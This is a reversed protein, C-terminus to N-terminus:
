REEGLKVAQHIRLSRIRLFLLAAGIAVMITVVVLLSNLDSQEFIVQFPPVQTKASGTNQMFPIFIKSALQGSLIGILISTGATLVQELLLMATLEARSLGSARLIGFQVTRRSLTFFWYLIYGLLSVFISVLFGLSLIGFVGGRSPHKLERLMENRNHEISILYIEKEALTKVMDAVSGNEKLRIWVEYPEMPTQDQVYDLNVIFFPAEDPYLTPWYPVGAYLIFDVPKQKIVLTVITGPELQYKELFKESVLMAAEHQGLLNLYVNPHVPYLSRKFHAVKAFDVNDIAMMNGQGLTKNGVAASVKMNLVRAVGEAGELNRFVEFPPEVYHLPIKSYDPQQSGGGGPGGGGPGGGNNGSGGQNGGNNGERLRALDRPDIRTEWQAQMVVDTGYKYLSRDTSNLDITRATSASYVGLGLTLTLLLMVPHYQKASRSLQTMTLYLPINKFRKTILFILKLIWPFIRLFIFGCAFLFIAPVFFLLPDVQLQESSLGTSLLTIRRQQFLYWGYGALGLLIVDLFLKQWIPSKSMRALDQKYNVISQRAYSIAPIVSALLALFVALLAYLWVELSIEVEVAKRNVFYLFGSTSGLSKAMVYGLIPGLILSVGGLILGELLYIWFIQWTSGGRSRLVAIDGRQRELSQRANMAIFYFVLVLIPAALTFLLLRLQNNQINFKNLLEYFSIETKTNPLVRNLQVDLNELWNRAKKLQPTTIDKLDFVYFWSGVNLPVGKALLEEKMVQESVIFSNRLIDLGQFWYPSNEDNVEYAGVVKIKLPPLGKGGTVPYTFTTGVPFGYIFLSDKRVIAEIYGGDSKDSFMKGESITIQNEINSLSLIGFQRRKSPDIQQNKEPSISQVKLQYSTTYSEVPLGSDKIIDHDMYEQIKKVQDPEPFQNAITQYRLVLSGAPMNESNDQLEKYILNKLAGNTYMPISTTLSVAIVLGLLSSLTLWRINWMKTFLFRLMQM